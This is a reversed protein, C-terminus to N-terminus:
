VPVRGPLVDAPARRQLFLSFINMNNIELQDVFYLLMNDSFNDTAATNNKITNKSGKGILFLNQKM